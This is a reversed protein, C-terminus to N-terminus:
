FFRALAGSNIQCLNKVMTNIASVRYLFFRLKVFVGSGV